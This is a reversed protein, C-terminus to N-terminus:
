NATKRGLLEALRNPYNTFAGDVRIELAKKMDQESDITYPHVALGAEHAKNVYNQDIKEFNPGIGAAYQKIIGAEKGTLSAHEKYKKLQILPIEPELEHIRKLSESSFSQLILGPNKGEGTLNISYKRALEILKDEMGPYEDPSKTEIYYNVSTGFHSFIEELTPVRLNEFAPRAYEPHLRNFWSGADLLKIEELPYFGVDGTGDTTRDVTKDHMAILHGDKTMQLDIELYDAGLLHALEYSAITHEPAYASAGRHGIIIFGGQLASAPDTDTSGCGALTYLIFLIISINKYM